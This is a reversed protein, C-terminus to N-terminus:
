SIPSTTPCTEKRDSPQPSAQAGASTVRRKLSYPRQHSSFHVLLEALFGTALFQVGLVLLLVGLILLPRRGIWEGGLWLIALYTNIALGLLTCPIGIMGFFHAPRREFALLFCVTMLDILGRFIRGGGYKSRGARRPHHQVVLEGIRFRRWHALIPIFRHLSGYLRLSELVERRYAKFGCNVDHLRTGTLKRVLWNFIRSSLVKHWPDHRQKKYGSVVDWGQALEALFRPIEAPDDQLDADLTIVVEGQAADFGAALAAAKGFNGRLVLLTVGATQLALAEILQAGGDTSGDDVFIFEVGELGVTAERLQRHLEELTAREDLFPVVISIRTTM